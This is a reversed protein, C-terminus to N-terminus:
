QVGLVIPNAPRGSVIACPRAALVAQPELGRAHPAVPRFESGVDGQHRQPVLSADTAAESLAEDVLGPMFGLLVRKLPALAM